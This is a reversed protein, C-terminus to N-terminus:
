RWVSTEARQPDDSIGPRQDCRHVPMVSRVCQRRLKDCADPAVEHYGLRHDHFDVLERPCSDSAVGRAPEEGREVGALVLDGVEGRAYETARDLDVAAVAVEIEPQRVCRDHREGLAVSQRDEREVERVEAGGSGWGAVPPEDDVFRAIGLRGPSLLTYM